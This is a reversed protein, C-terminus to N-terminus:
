NIEKGERTRAAIAFISEFRNPRTLPRDEVVFMALSPAAGSCCGLVYFCIDPQMKSKFVTLFSAPQVLALCYGLQAVHLYICAHLGLCVGSSFAAANIWWGCHQWICIIIELGFFFTWFRGFHIPWFYEMLIYKLIKFAHKLPLLYELDLFHM